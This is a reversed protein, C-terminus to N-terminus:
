FKNNLKYLKVVLRDSGESKVGEVSWRCSWRCQVIEVWNCVKKSRDQNVEVGGEAAESIESKKVWEQPDKSSIWETYVKMSKFAAAGESEEEIRRRQIIVFM